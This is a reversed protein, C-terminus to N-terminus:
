SKTPSKLSSQTESDKLDTWGIPYGMLWEVWMPNLSGSGQGEGAVGPLSNMVFSTKEGRQRKYENAQRGKWDRSTPTPWIKIQYELSQTSWNGKNFSRQGRGTADMATPTPWMKEVHHVADKLKVGWRTGDKNKRSFSGNEMEVNKVLGGETDSVRPTPWLGSGIEDTRPMKPVLRFLLRNAPTTKAKWTLFCKTSAWASTDLLTKLLCGLPGVHDSLRLCQRGSTATMKRAEASGPRASLSARTDEPLSSLSAFNLQQFNGFTKSYGFEQSTKECSESPTPNSKASHSPKSEPGDHPLPSDESEPFSILTLQDTM